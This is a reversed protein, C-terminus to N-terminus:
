SVRKVAVGLVNFSMHVPLWLGFVWIIPVLIFRRPHRPAVGIVRRTFYTLTAEPSHTRYAKTEYVGFFALAAVLGGAWTSDSRTWTM